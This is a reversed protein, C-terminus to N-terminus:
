HSQLESTHEESRSYINIPQSYDIWIRGLSDTVVPGYQPIRMKEVGLENLKIQTTDDGGAVRMIEMSLSPYLSGNVSTILPIRRNVGDVEPLTNVTGVGIAYDELLPINAIIGPYHVIRDQYDSNIVVTGPHKPVNKTKEAPQNVLITPHMTMNAALSQDGGMRDKEPFMVDLVVLGANREYLERILNGYENRPIPWQGYKNLAEEDINVVSIPLDSNATSEKGAILTDFYRLRISEVFPKDAVRVSLILALTIIATWPSLLIKKWM